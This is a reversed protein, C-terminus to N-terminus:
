PTDANVINTYGYITYRYPDNVIDSIGEILLALKNVAKTANKIKLLIEMLKPFVKTIIALEKLLALPALFDFSNTSIEQTQQNTSLEQNDSPSTRCSLM